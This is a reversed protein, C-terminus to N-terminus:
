PNFSLAVNQSVCPKRSYTLCNKSVKRLNVSFQINWNLPIKTHLRCWSRCHEHWYSYTASHRIEKLMKVKIRSVHLIHHAGLLALLHCITNLETNLPNFDPTETHKKVFVKTWAKLLVCDKQVLLYFDINITLIRHNGHIPWLIQWFKTHRLTLAPTHRISM